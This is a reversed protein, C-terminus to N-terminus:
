PSDAVSLSLLESGALKHIQVSYNHRKETM